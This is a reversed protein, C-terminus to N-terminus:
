VHSRGIKLSPLVARARKWMCYARFTTGLQEKFLHVFRPVSLNSMRACDAASLHAFPQTQLQWVVRRIRPDVWRQVLASGFFFRDFAEASAAAPADGDRWAVFAASIARYPSSQKPVPVHPLRLVTSDSIAEPEILIKRITRDSSSIEHARNPPVVALWGSRFLM